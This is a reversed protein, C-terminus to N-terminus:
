PLIMVHSHCMKKMTQPKYMSELRVVDGLQTFASAKRIYVLLLFLVKLDLWVM